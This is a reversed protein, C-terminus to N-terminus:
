NDSEGERTASTALCFGSSFADFCLPLPSLSSSRYGTLPGLLGALLTGVNKVGIGGLEGLGAHTESQYQAMPDPIVAVRM